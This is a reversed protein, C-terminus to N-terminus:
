SFHTLFHILYKIDVLYKTGLFLFQFFWLSFVTIDIPHFLVDQKLESFHPLIFLFLRTLSSVSCSSAAVSSQSSSSSPPIFRFLHLASPRPLPLISWVAPFMFSSHLFHSQCSSCVSTLFLRILSSHHSCTERSPVSTSHPPSPLTNPYAAWSSSNQKMQLFCICSLISLLLFLLSFSSETSRLFLFNSHLECAVHVNTWSTTSMQFHRLHYDSHM